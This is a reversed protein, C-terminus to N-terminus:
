ENIKNISKMLKEKIFVKLAEPSLIEVENPLGLIFRGIGEFSSVPGEFIWHYSDLMSLYKEALPYEEKILSFARLNLKLKVLVQEAGSIRFVDLPLSQHLAAFQFAQNSISVKKIRATKFTKNTQSDCDYAWVAIYNATFDFPEVLRNQITNSNSSHYDHLVVQRGERMAEVLSHINESQEKRVIVQAVKGFKYLSYLKDVLNIKLQNNEDISHIAQRMIWAEEETFYPLQHLEKFPSEIKDIWYRGNSQEVPFGINILNDRDRFFTRKSIGYREAIENASYRLGSSLNLLMKLLREAQPIETM